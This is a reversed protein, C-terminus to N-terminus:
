AEAGEYRIAPARPIGTKRHRQHGRDHDRDPFRPADKRWRHDDYSMRSRGAKVSLSPTVDGGSEIPRQFGVVTIELLCAVLKILLRLVHLDSRLFPESIQLALDKIKLTAGPLSGREVLFLGHLILNELEFLRFAPLALADEVNLVLDLVLTFCGHSREFGTELM